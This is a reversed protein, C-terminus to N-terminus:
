EVKQMWKEQEGNQWWVLIAMTMMIVWKGQFFSPLVGHQHGIFFDVRKENCFDDDDYDDYSSWLEWNDSENRPCYYYQHSESKEQEDKKYKMKKM